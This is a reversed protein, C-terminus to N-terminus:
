ICLKTQLADRCWVKFSTSEEAPTGKALSPFCGSPIDRIGHFASSGTTHSTVAVNVVAAKQMSKEIPRRSAPAAASTASVHLVAVNADSVKWGIRSGNFLVRV